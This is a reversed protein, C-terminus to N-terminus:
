CNSVSHDDAPEEPKAFPEFLENLKANLAAKASDISLTFSSPAAPAASAQAESTAATTGANARSQLWLAGAGLLAVLGLPVLVRAKSKAPPSEPPAVVVVRPDTSALANQTSGKRTALRASELTRDPGTRGM